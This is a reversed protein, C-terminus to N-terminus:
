WLYPNAMLLQSSERRARRRVGDATPWFTVGISSFLRSAVLSRRSVEVLTANKSVFLIVLHPFCLLLTAQEETTFFLFLLGWARNRPPQSASHSTCRRRSLRRWRRRQLPCGAYLLSILLSLIILADNALGAYSQLPSM